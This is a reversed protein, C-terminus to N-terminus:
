GDFRVERVCPLYRRDLRGRLGSILRWIAELSCLWMTHSKPPLEEHCAGSKLGLRAYALSAEFESHHKSHSHSLDSKVLM